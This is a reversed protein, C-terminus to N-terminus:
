KWPYNPMTYNYFPCNKIEQFGLKYYPPMQSYKGDTNPPQIENVSCINMKFMSPPAGIYNSQYTYAKKGMPLYNGNIPNM